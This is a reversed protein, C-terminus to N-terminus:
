KSWRLLQQDNWITICAPSILFTFFVWILKIFFNIEVNKDSATFSKEWLQSKLWCAIIVTQLSTQGRLSLYLKLSIVDGHQNIRSSSGLAATVVLRSIRADVNRSRELNLFFFSQYVFRCLLGVCCRLLVVHIWNTQLYIPKHVTLKQETKIVRWEAGQAIATLILCHGSFM